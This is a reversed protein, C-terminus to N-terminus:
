RILKLMRLLETIESETAIPAYPEGKPGRRSLSRAVSRYEPEVRYSNFVLGIALDIESSKFLDVVDICSTILTYFDGRPVVEFISRAVSRYELEPSAVV